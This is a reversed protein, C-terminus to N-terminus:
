QPDVELASSFYGLWDDATLCTAVFSFTLNNAANESYEVEAAAMTTQNATAITSAQSVQKTPTFFVERDQRSGPKNAHATSHITSSGMLITMSKTGASNNCLTQAFLRAIGREGAFGGPLTYSVLTVASTTQTYAGPGTTVFATPSAPATPIGGTYTNNYITGATTSSMVTYYIGAASGAYIANAPFYLYIGGSYTRSLATTLTLAGNNGISGGSPRFVPLRQFGITVSNHDSSHWVVGDSLLM